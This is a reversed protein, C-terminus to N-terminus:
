NNKKEGSGSGTMPKENQIVPIVGLVTIGDFASTLDQEDRIATDLMFLVFIVAAAAIFGLFAGIIANRTKNPSSPAEPLTPPYLSEVAGVKAVRKVEPQLAEFLLTNILKAEEPSTSTVKISIIESDEIHSANIMSKITKISYESLTLFEYGPKGVNDNLQDAVQGVVTDGTLIRIYSNILYRALGIDSTNITANERQNYVYIETNSTYKPTIAYASLTYALVAAIVTFIVIIWAKKLMVKLLDNFSIEKKM